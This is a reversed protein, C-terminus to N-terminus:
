FSKIYNRVSNDSKTNSPRPDLEFVEHNPWAQGMLPVLYEKRAVYDLDDLMGMIEILHHKGKRDILFDPLLFCDAYGIGDIPKEISGDNDQLIRYIVQKAFNREYNSDVPMIRSKSVIPKIYMTHARYKTKDNPRCLSYVVLFPGDTGGLSPNAEDKVGFGETLIRQVFINKGSDLSISKDSKNSRDISVTDVIQVVLAHPRSDPRWNNKREVDYLAKAALKYGNDGSFIWNSLASGEPGFAIGSASERLSRIADNRNHKNYSQDFVINQESNKILYRVLNVLKDVKVGSRNRKYNLVNRHQKTTTKGTSSSFEGFLSFETFSQQQRKLQAQLRDPDHIISGSVVRYHPCNKDHIGKAAHCVLGYYSKKYTYHRAFMLAPPNTCHCAITGHAEHLEQIANQATKTGRKEPHLCFVETHSLERIVTSGSEDRIEMKSKM